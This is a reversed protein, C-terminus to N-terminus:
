TSFTGFTGYTNTRVNQTCGAATLLSQHSRACVILFVRLILFITQHCSNSDLLTLATKRINFASIPM